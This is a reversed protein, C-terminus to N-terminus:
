ATKYYERLRILIKQSHNESPVLIFRQDLAITTKLQIMRRKSRKVMRAATAFDCQKRDIAKMDKYLEDVVKSNHSEHPHELKALRQRDFAIDLALRSTEQSQTDELFAIKEDQSAITAELAKIRDLLPEIAKEVAEIVLEQLQGYTLTVLQESQPVFDAKPSPGFTNISVLAVNSM